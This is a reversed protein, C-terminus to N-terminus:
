TARPHASVRPGLLSRTSVAGQAVIRGQMLDEPTVAAIVDERDFVLGRPAPFRALIHRLAAGNGGGIDAILRSASFDYAGAIAEHRNDPFNAMMADFARAEDPHQRLYYFPYYELSGSTAHRWDDRCGAHGVGGRVPGPGSAHLTTCATLPTRACCARAHRIRSLEMRRSRSSRFRLWRVSCRSCHSPCFPLPLPTVMEAVAGDLALKDPIGLDAVLRLMRSVQFGRLLLHTEMRDEASSVPEPM